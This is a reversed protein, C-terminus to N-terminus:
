PEFTEGLIQETLQWLRAANDDGQAWKAWGGTGADTDERAVLGCDQAYQGGIGDLEPATAMWVANAAGAPVEKFEMPPSGEPRNGMIAAIDEETMHRGLETM